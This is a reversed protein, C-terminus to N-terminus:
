GGPATLGARRDAATPLLDAVTLLAFFLAILAIVVTAM